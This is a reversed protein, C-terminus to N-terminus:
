QLLSCSARRVAHLATLPALRLLLSADRLGDYRRGRLQLNQWARKALAMGYASQWYRIGERYAQKEQRTCLANRQSRLVRLANRLMLAPDSSMNRRHKRYEAVVASHHSIPYSRAIRLFLDYDEAAELSVDFGGVEDLAWRQYMVVAHMWIYNRKLLARYADTPMQPRQEDRLVEGREDIWRFWGTTLAAGASALLSARGSSLAGPLLRDDADLFVLYHGRSHRLGANRAAALGMKSQRVLHVGPYRHAVQATQDSSGDDVVVIESTADKQQLVSELAEGLYQAQNHCPIVVSVLDGSRVDAPLRKKSTERATAKRFIFIQGPGEADRWQTQEQLTFGARLFL